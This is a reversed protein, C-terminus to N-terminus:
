PSVAPPEAPRGQGLRLPVPEPGARLQGAEVERASSGPSPLDGPSHVLLLALRQHRGPAQPLAASSPTSTYCTTTTPSRRFARVRAPVKRALDAVWKNFPDSGADAQTFLLGGAESSRASSPTTPSPSSAPRRPQRPLPRAHRALRDLRPRREVVQWNVRRKSSAPPSAPSTPSTARATTGLAARRGRRVRLKSMIVPHRGRALFLVHYATEIIRDANRRASGRGSGDPQQQRLVSAALERYWDHTGLDQLRQRTRRTRPRVPRLRPLFTKSHRRSPLQRRSSGPLAPPSPSTPSPEAPRGATAAAGGLSGTPPSPPSAIGASTM